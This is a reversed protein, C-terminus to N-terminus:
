GRLDAQLGMHLKVLALYQSFNKTNLVVLESIFEEYSNLLTMVYGSSEEKAAKNPIFVHEKV